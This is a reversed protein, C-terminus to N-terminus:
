DDEDMIGGMGPYDGDVVGGKTLLAVMARGRRVLEEEAKRVTGTVRLVRVVCEGGEGGPVRTLGM